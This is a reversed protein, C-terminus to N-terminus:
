ASLNPIAKMLKRLLSKFEQDRVIKNHDFSLYELKKCNLISKPLKTICNNQIGMFKLNTCKGITEPISELQTYCVQLRTLNTLDGLSDPLNHLNVNSGSQNYLILEKLNKLSGIDNPLSTIQTDRLELYELNKLASISTFSTLNKSWLTLYKLNTLNNLSNPFSTLTNEHVRIKTLNKLNGIVEPFAGILLYLGKLNSLKGFSDPISKSDSNTKNELFSSFDLDALQLNTLEGFSEPLDIVASKFYRLNKLNGFSKPLHIFGSNLILDELGTLNSFIEPLVDNPFSFDIKLYKLSKLNGFSVPFSFDPTSEIKLTELNKCQDIEDPLTNIKYGEYGHIGYSGDGYDYSIRISALNQLLVISPSIDIACNHFTLSTVNGEDDSEFLILNYGEQYNLERQPQIRFHDGFLERLHKKIIKERIKKDEDARLCSDHAKQYREEYNILEENCYKCFIREYKKTRM